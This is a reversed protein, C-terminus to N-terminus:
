TIMQGETVYMEVGFFFWELFGSWEVTGSWEM